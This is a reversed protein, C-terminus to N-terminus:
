STANNSDISKLFPQLQQEAAQFFKQTLRIHKFRSDSKSTEYTVLDLSEMESLVQHVTPRSLGTGAAIASIPLTELSGKAHASALFSAVEFRSKSGFM